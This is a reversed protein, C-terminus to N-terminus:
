FRTGSIPTGTVRLHETGCCVGGAEKWSAPLIGLSTQVTCLKHQPSIKRVLSPPSNKGPIKLDLEILCGRDELPRQLICPFALNAGEEARM